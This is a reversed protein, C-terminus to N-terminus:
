AYVFDPIPAVPSTEWSDNNDDDPPLWTLGFFPIREYLTRHNRSGYETLISGDKRLWMEEFEPHAYLITAVAADGERFLYITSDNYRKYVISIAWEESMHKDRVRGIDIWRKDRDFYERKLIERVRNRLDYVVKMHPHTAIIDGYPSQRSLVEIEIHIWGWKEKMGAPDMSSLIDVLSAKRNEWVHLDM